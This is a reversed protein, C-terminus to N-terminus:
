GANHLAITISAKGFRSRLEVSIPKAAPPRPPEPEAFLDRVVAVQRAARAAGAGTQPGSALASVRELEPDPKDSVFIMLKEVGPPGGVKLWKTPDGPIRITGSTPLESVGAVPFARGVTGSTGLDLVYVYSPRPVSVTLAIRDGTHVTAGDPLIAGDSNTLTLTALSEPSANAAVKPATELAVSADPTVERLKGHEALERINMYWANAEDARKLYDERSIEGAALRRCLRASSEIYFQLRDTITQQAAPSATGNLKLKDLAADFDLKEGAILLESSCSDRKSVLVYVLLAVVLM